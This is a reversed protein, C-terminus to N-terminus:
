IQYNLLTLLLEKESTKKVMQQFYHVKFLNTCLLKKMQNFDKKLGFM